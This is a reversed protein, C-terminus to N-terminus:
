DCESAQKTAKKLKSKLTGEIDIGLLAESFLVPDKIDKGLAYLSGVLEARARDVLDAIQESARDIQNQDAM